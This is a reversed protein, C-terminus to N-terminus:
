QEMRSPRVQQTAGAAVLLRRGGVVAREGLDAVVRLTAVELPASCRQGGSRLREGPLRVRARADPGCISKGVTSKAIKKQRTKRPCQINFWLARAHFANM